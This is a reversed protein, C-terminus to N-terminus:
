VPSWGGPDFELTLYKRFDATHRQLEDHTLETGQLGKRWTGRDVTGIVFYGTDGIKFGDEELRNALEAELKDQHAIVVDCKPCFRTTM